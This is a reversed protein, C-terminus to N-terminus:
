KSKKIPNKIKSKSKKPVYEEDSDSDSTDEDSVNNEQYDEKLVKQLKSGSKVKKDMHKSPFTKFLFKRYEQMDLEEKESNSSSDEESSESYDGSDSSTDNRKRMRTKDKKNQSRTVVNLKSDKPM